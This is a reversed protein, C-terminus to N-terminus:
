VGETNENSTPLQELEEVATSIEKLRPTLASNKPLVVLTKERMKRDAALRTLLLVGAGGINTDSIAEIIEM